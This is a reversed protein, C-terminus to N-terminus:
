RRKIEEALPSGAGISFYSVTMLRDPRIGDDALPVSLFEGCLYDAQLIQFRTIIRLARRAEIAAEIFATTRPLAEPPLFDEFGLGTLEGLVATVATGVFRHVYRASGDAKRAIELVTVHPLYPKLLRASFDARSPLRKKAMAFLIHRLSILEPQLFSLSEDARTQWNEARARANVAEVPDCARM